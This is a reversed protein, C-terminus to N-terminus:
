GRGDGNARASSNRDLFELMRKVIRESTRGNGFVGPRRRGAPVSKAARLIRAPDAGALINWRGKLTEVWETEDRLTVCPVGLVYAEKQIGGSDTLVKRANRALVLLEGHGVPPVFRVNAARRAAGGLGFERIRKRTRPHLPCVVPADLRGLADLLRALRRSDDANGARHITALYYGKRKIGFRSLVREQPLAALRVRCLEAMVDGVVAVGRTIKERRLNERATRTPCFLLSSVRDTLIRNIEEPMRLDFSRLGAEVHAVSFGRRCAALAGALTSRTDGYVLVLDPREKLLVRELREMMRAAQRDPPASRAGLTYDPKPLSLERFFRKALTEDTHQETDVLVERIRRRYAGKSRITKSLVSAKILQPRTGIVTLVKFPRM